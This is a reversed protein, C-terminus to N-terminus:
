CSDGGGSKRVISYAGSGAPMPRCIPALETWGAQVGPTLLVDALQEFIRDDSIGVRFRLPQPPAGDVGGDIAVRAAFASRRPVPLVFILRSPAITRIAPESQGAVSVDAVEFSARSPRAEADRFDRVLNVIRM